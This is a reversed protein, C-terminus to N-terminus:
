EQLSVGPSRPDAAGIWHGDPAREAANAKLGLRSVTVRHGLTGQKVAANRVVAVRINAIRNVDAHRHETGVATSRPYSDPVRYFPLFIVM